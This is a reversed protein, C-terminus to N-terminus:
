CSKMMEIEVESHHKLLEQQKKILEIVLKFNKEATAAKIEASIGDLETQVQAYYARIEEKTM